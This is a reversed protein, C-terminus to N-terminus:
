PDRHQCHYRGGLSTAPSPDADDPDPATCDKVEASVKSSNCFIRPLDQVNSGVGLQIENAPDAM